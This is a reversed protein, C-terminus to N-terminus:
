MLKQQPVNPTFYTVYWSFDIKVMRQATAESARGDAEPQHSSLKHDSNLQLTM